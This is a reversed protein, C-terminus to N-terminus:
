KSTCVAAILKVRLGLVRPSRVSLAGLKKESLSCEFKVRISDERCVNSQREIGPLVLANYIATLTTKRCTIICLHSKVFFKM